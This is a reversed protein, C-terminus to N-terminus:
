SVYRYMWYSFQINISCKFIEKGEDVKDTAMTGTYCYSPMFCYWPETSQVSKLVRKNQMLVVTHGKCHHNSHLDLLFTQALEPM